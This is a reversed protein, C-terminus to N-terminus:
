QIVTFKMSSSYDETLLRAIYVGPELDDTSFLHTGEPLNGFFVSGATRGTIDYINLTVLEPKDLTVSFSPSSSSPNCAFVISTSNEQEEIGEPSELRVLAIDSHYSGAYATGAIAYGGDLTQAVCNAIDGSSIDWTYEWLINGNTDLKVALFDDNSSSIELMGVALYGDYLTRTIAEIYFYGPTNMDTVWQVNGDFDSCIVGGTGYDSGALVFGDQDSKCMDWAYGASSSNFIYYDIPNGSYDILKAMYHYSTDQMESTWGGLLYGGSLEMVSGTYEQWSSLYRNSWEQVGASDTRVVMIDKNYATDHAYGVVLYGGDSLEILDMAHDGTEGGYNGSWQVNGDSDMKLLLFNFSLPYATDTTFGAIAYGGDSTPIIANAVEYADEVGFYSTWVVDGSSNVKLVFVDDSNGDERASGALIFGGDDAALIDMCFDIDRLDYTRSWLTGPQSVAIVSLTCVIVIAYKM